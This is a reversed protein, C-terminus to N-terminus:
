WRSFLLGSIVLFCPFLLELFNGCTAWFSKKQKPKWENRFSLVKYFIATVAILGNPFHTKKKTRGESQLKVKIQNLNASSTLTEKEFFFEPLTQGNISTVFSEIFSYFVKYHIRSTFKWNRSLKKLTQFKKKRIKNMKVFIQSPFHVILLSNLKLQREILFNWFGADSM